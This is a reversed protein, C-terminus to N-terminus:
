KSQVANSRLGGCSAAGQQLVKGSFLAFPDTQEESAFLAAQFDADGVICRKLNLRQM